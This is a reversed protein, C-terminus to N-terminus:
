STLIVLPGSPLEASLVRRRRRAGRSLLLVLLLGLCIPVRSTQSLSIRLTLGLDVGCEDLELDEEGGGSDSTINRPRPLRERAVERRRFDDM